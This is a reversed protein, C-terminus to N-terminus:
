KLKMTKYHLDIKRGIVLLSSPYYMYMSYQIKCWSGVSNTLCFKLPHGDVLDRSLSSRIIKNCLVDSDTQSADPIERWSSDTDCNSHSLSCPSTLTHTHTWMLAVICESRLLESLIGTMPRLVLCGPTIQQCLVRLRLPSPKIITTLASYSIQDRQFLTLPCYAKCWKLYLQLTLKLLSLITCINCM